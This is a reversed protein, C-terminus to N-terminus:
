RLGFTPATKESESSVLQDYSELQSNIRKLKNDAQTKELEWMTEQYSLPELAADQEAELQAKAAELWISVNNGYQQNANQVWMQAQQQQMQAAQKAWNFAAVQDATWGNEYTPIKKNTAEDIEYKIQGDEDRAPVFGNNQSFEAWMAEFEEQTLHITRNLTPKGGAETPRDYIKYGNNEAAGQILANAANQYIFGNLGTYNMPSTCNIGLGAMNQFMMTANSQMMKAQQELQAFLSTYRKQVREINKTVRDLKSSYKTLDLTVQNKERILRMKQYMALLLAMEEHGKKISKFIYLIDTASFQM